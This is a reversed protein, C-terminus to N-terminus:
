EEKKTRLTYANENILGGNNYKKRKIQKPLSISFNLDELENEDINFQQKIKPNLQNEM